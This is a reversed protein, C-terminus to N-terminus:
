ASKKKKNRQIFRLVFINVIVLMILFSVAKHNYIGQSIRLVGIVLAGIMLTSPLHVVKTSREHENVLKNRDLSQNQAHTPLFIALIHISLSLIAFFLLFQPGTLQFPNVRDYYYTIIGFPLALLCVAVINQIIKNM